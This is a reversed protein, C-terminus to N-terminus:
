GNNQGSTSSASLQIVIGFRIMFAPVTTGGNESGGIHSGRRKVVLFNEGSDERSYLM